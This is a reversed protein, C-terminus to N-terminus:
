IARKSAYASAFLGTTGTLAGETLALEYMTIDPEVLSFTTEWCASRFICGPLIVRSMVAITTSSLMYSSLSSFFVTTVPFVIASYPSVKMSPSDALTPSRRFAISTPPSTWAASSSALYLAEDLSIKTFSIFELHMSSPSM